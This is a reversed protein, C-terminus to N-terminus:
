KSMRVVGSWEPGPDQDLLNQCREMYMRTPRDEPFEDHLEQLLALAKQWQRDLYLEYIGQFSTALKRLSPPAEGALEGMLEYILVSATKGKVAVLDLPRLIFEKRVYRYTDQSIIIRTGYAKNVGELRSALNVNDGLATYNLRDRSGMNGVITFGTHIGIRTYFAPNGMALRRENLRLIAEQSQLAARCASVAHRENALPAGWFAMVADGIFKDVTGGQRSIPETMVEFYESVDIMLERAPLTETISTFNAIDSFFLTIEVEKGGPLAENGSAILQRVLDAPVYQRFAQLGSRMALVADSMMAVEAIRSNVGHIGELDFDKIKGTERALQVLPISIHRALLLVFIIAGSLIVLSIALSQKMTRYVRQLVDAEPLAVVVKWGNGYGEPLMTTSVIFDNGGANIVSRHNGNKQRADFAQELWGLGLDSVRSTRLGKGDATPQVTKEQDGFAVVENREDVILIFGHESVSQRALFESISSLSIDAAVVATIKGDRVVPFTATLGPRKVTKFIYIDSWNVKMAATTSLYWPRQRPDYTTKKDEISKLRYDEDRLFWRELTEGTGVRLFRTTWEPKRRSQWFRGDATAVYLSELQPANMLMDWMSRWLGEEDIRGIEERQIRKATLMTGNIAPALYAQIQGIVKDSMEAGIKESLARAADSFQFYFNAMLLLTSLVILTAFSALINVRLSTKM